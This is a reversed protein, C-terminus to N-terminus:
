SSTSKLTIKQDNLLYTIHGSQDQSQVVLKGPALEDLTRCYQLILPKSSLQVDSFM